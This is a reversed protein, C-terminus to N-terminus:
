EYLLTNCTLPLKNKEQRKEAMLPLLRRRSLISSSITALAIFHECNDKTKKVIQKAKRKAWDNRSFVNLEM